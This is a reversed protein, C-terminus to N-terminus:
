FSIIVRDGGSEVDLFTFHGSTKRQRRLYKYVGNFFDQMEKIDKQEGGKKKLLMKAFSKSKIFFNPIQLCIIKKGNEKIEVKM